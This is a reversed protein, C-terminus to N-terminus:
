TQEHTRRHSRHKRYALEVIQHHFELAWELAATGLPRFQEYHCSRGIMSALTIFCFERYAAVADPVFQRWNDDNTHHICCSRILRQIIPKIRFLDHYREARQDEIQTAAYHYHISLLMRSRYGYSIKPLDEVLLWIPLTYYFWIPLVTWPCHDVWGFYDYVLAHRPIRNYALDKCFQERYVDLCMIGCHRMGEFALRAILEATNADIPYKAPAFEHILLNAVVLDFADERYRPLNDEMPLNREPSPPVMQEPLHSTALYNELCTQTLSQCETWLSDLDLNM